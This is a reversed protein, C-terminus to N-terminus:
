QKETARTLETVNSKTFFGDFGDYRHIYENVLFTYPSMESFTQKLGDERSGVLDILFGMGDQKLAAFTDEIQETRFALHHVRLGFNHIFRETPGSSELDRFPSIGSTFVQAYDEHSLRAVNTISNLSEVYVAFDFRYGTLHMFEIIADDRHEAKVRTASHDLEFINRLHPKESKEINLELVETDEGIWEGENDHWQIFGLSNGTYPSPATQIFSYEETVVPEDTMFRIGREQQVAAYREIDNCRYVFTELRSDPAHASKPGSNYPLFPNTTGTGAGKRASFLFDASGELKLVSVPGGGGQYAGRFAYGTGSLFEEVAARHHEPAVNIMVAELGGVMTQIGARDREEAAKEVRELLKRDDNSFESM